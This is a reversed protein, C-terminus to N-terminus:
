AQSGCSSVRCVAVVLAQTCLGRAGCRSLGHSLVAGQEGRSLARAYCYFGVMALFLYFIFSYIKFFLYLSVSLHKFSSSQPSPKM